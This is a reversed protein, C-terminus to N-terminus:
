GHSVLPWVNLILATVLGGLASQFLIDYGTGARAWAFSGSMTMSLVISALQTSFSM